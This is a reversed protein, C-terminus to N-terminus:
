NCMTNCKVMGIFSGASLLCVYVSNWYLTIILYMYLIYLYM